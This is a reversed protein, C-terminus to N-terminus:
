VKDSMPISRMQLELVAADMDADPFIIQLGLRTGARAVSFKGNLYLAADQILPSKVTWKEDDILRWQVRFGAAGDQDTVLRGNRWMRKTQPTDNGYYGGRWFASLVALPDANRSPNVSVGGQTLSTVKLEFLQGANSIILHRRGTVDEITSIFDASQYLPFAGFNDDADLDFFLILNPTTAGDIPLLLCYWERELWNFYHGIVSEEAGNTIRSMLPYVGGSIDKPKNTGDFIKVTRDSAVYALGFPTSACTYHSMLGESWPLQELFASFVVPDTTTIDEVIGRFMFMENSKSFAVVGAQIVGGGRIDDAGIALRLRNNPPFCQAPVGRAIKEYGSYIIDHSAGVLNFIFIRDQFKSLYRGLLPPANILQPVINNQLNNDDHVDIYNKAIVTGAVADNNLFKDGGGDQSNYVFYHTVQSDAPVPAIVKYGTAVAVPGLKAGPGISSEGGDQSNGYSIAWERFTAIAFGSSMTLTGAGQTEDAGAQVYTIHLNDPVSAIVFTGNFNTAGVSVGAVTVSVGATVDAADFNHPTTTKITVTGTLRVAGSNALTDIIGGLIVVVPAPPATIGWNQLLLVNGLWKFSRSINVGYLENNAEIVDMTSGANLINDEIVTPTLTSDWFVLRSGIVAFIQRVGSQQYDIFPRIVGTSGIGGILATFATPLRFKELGGSRSVIVNRCDEAYQPSLSVRSLFQRLGRFTKIIDTGAPGSM